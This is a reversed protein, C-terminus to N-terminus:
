KLNVLNSSKIDVCKNTQYKFGNRYSHNNIIDNLYEFSYKKKVVSNINCNNIKLSNNKLIYAKNDISIFIDNIGEVLFMFDDQKFIKMSYNKYANIITKLKLDGYLSHIDLKDDNVIRYKYEPFIMPEMKKRYNSDLYKIFFRNQNNFIIIQNFKDPCFKIFELINSNCNFEGKNSDLQFIPITFVRNKVEYNTIKFYQVVDISNSEILYNFSSIFKFQCQSYITQFNLIFIYLFINKM